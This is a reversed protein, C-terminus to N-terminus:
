EGVILWGIEAVCGECIANAPAQEGHQEKEACVACYVEGAYGDGALVVKSPKAEGKLVHLCVIIIRQMGPHRDSPCPMRTVIEQRM